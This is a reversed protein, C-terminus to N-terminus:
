VHAIGEITITDSHENDQTASDTYDYRENCLALIRNIRDSYAVEHDIAELEVNRLLHNLAIVTLKLKSCEILTETYGTEMNDLEEELHIIESDLFEIENFREDMINHM